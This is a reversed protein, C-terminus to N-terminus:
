KHDIQSFVMRVAQGSPVDNMADPDGDTHAAQSGPLYEDITPEVDHTDQSGPLYEILLPDLAHVARDEDLGLGLGM